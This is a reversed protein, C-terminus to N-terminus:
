LKLRGPSSQSQSRRDNGLDSIRRPTAAKAEARGDLRTSQGVWRAVAPPTRAHTLEDAVAAPIVLRDYLKPLVGITECLVLYHIPGSDAVVLSM